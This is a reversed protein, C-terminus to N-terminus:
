PTNKADVVFTTIERLRANLHDKAEQSYQQQLAIERQAGAKDGLHSYARALRYHAEAYAPRLAIAQELSTASQKWQSRQQELVGMEYHADPLKPDAALAQTLLREAAAPDQNASPRNLLATAAYTAAQANEPHHEAFAQLGECSAASGEALLSCSRGLLDAYLANNPDVALLRSFTDASAAYEGKGYSAIGSVVAFHTSAPYKEAGFQAVNRAQEWTWHRLFEIALTYINSDSPDLKAAAQYQEAAAKFHGQREAVDGALSDAQGTRAEAPIRALVEEAKSYMGGTYLADAWNYLLDPNGPQAEAAVAFAAAAGKADGVHMLAQGLNSQTAGNAPDLAAAKKLERVADPNSGSALFAGGLNAHAVGQQPAIAAARKLLPLAQPFDGKEAYIGGLAENVEFNEPYKKLLTLLGGQAEDLRGQDYADLARQLAAQDAPVMQRHLAANHSAPGQLAFAGQGASLMLLALALVQKNSHFLM